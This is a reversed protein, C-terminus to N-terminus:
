IGLLIYYLICNALMYSVMRQIERQIVAPRITDAQDSGKYYRTAM